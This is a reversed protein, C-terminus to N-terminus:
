DTHVDFTICELVNGSKDLAEATGTIHGKPLENPITVPYHGKQAGKTMPINVDKTGNFIVIIGLKVKAKVKAFMITELVDVDYVIDIKSGGKIDGTISFSLIKALKPTTGSCIGWSYKSKLGTSPHVFELTHLAEKILQDPGQEHSYMGAILICFFLIKQNM